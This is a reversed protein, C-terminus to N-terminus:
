LNKMLVKRHEHYWLNQHHVGQFTSSKKIPTPLHSKGFRFLFPPSIHSISLFPPPFLFILFATKNKLFYVLSIIPKEFHINKKSIADNQTDVTSIEPPDYSFLPLSTPFPLIEDGCILECTQPGYKKMAWPSWPCLNMQTAAGNMSRFMNHIKFAGNLM